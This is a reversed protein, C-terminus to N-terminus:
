PAPSFQTLTGSCTQGLDIPMGPPACDANATFTPLGGSDAVSFTSAGNFPELAETHEGLMALFIKGTPSDIGTITQSLHGNVIFSMNVAGDAGITLQANGMGEKEPDFTANDVFTGGGSYTTVYHDGEDSGSISWTGSDVVWLPEEEGKVLHVNLVVTWKDNPGAIRSQTFSLTGEVGTCPQKALLVTFDGKVASTPTKDHNSVVLYIEDVRDSAVTRCFTTQGPGLRRREWGKDRIKVLADVDLATAPAMASFDVVLRGLEDGSLDFRYYHAMLSGLGEGVKVPSAKEDQPVLSHDSENQIKPDVWPFTKDFAQYRLTIPDNPELLKDLNRVAFDRFRTTFPVQIDIATMLQDWTKRGEVAVWVNAIAQAGNEQEMFYPWIYADYLHLRDDLNTAQLPWPRNQFDSFRPVHVDESAFDRDFHAAAWEASAEVFWNVEDIPRGKVDKRGTPRDCIELNHAFQLVHFFEHTLVARFKAESGGLGGSRADRRLIVYGSSTRAGPTGSIPWAPSTVGLVNGGDANFGKCGYRQACDGDDLLYIDIAKSGGWELQGDASSDPKPPGMLRVMAPWISDANDLAVEIDEEFHDRCKAWVKFTGPRVVSEKSAWGDKCTLAATRRLETGPMIRAVALHADVGGTQTAAFISKPDTPRVLFPELKAKIDAPLADGLLRPEAFVGLDDGTSGGGVFEAPLDATGFLAYARYLLSTPYDITGNNLAAAILDQSSPPGQSPAPAPAGPSAAAAASGGPAASAVAASSASAGPSPQQGPRGTAVTYVVGGVVAIAVLAVVLIRARM